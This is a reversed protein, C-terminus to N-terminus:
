KKKSRKPKGPAGHPSAPDIDHLIQRAENDLDATELLDPRLQLTSRLAEQRRWRRINEHHGTMLIDPVRMGRLEEPRTYHPHDLLGRFFSDEAVSASNGVVGEIMRAAADAILMAPLEGGSVVFDGVSIEDPSLAEHVRHDFGEYRGCLVVIWGANAIERAVPQTFLRGKPSTLVVRPEPAVEPARDGGAGDNEETPTAPASASQRIAEVCRLVPEALMVMGPGGGYAEDDTSRYKDTAFERLDWVRFDLLGQKVGRAIVGEGLLADFMRPFITVFDIRLGAAGARDVVEGAAGIKGLERPERADSSQSSHAVSPRRESEDEIAVLGELDDLGAPISAVIRRNTLDIDTCIEAAFPMEYTRSGQKVTLLVGGGGEYADVITGRESGDPDVVALGVLDHLYYEGEELQRAETAPIELTWGQIDRLEEPSGIEEFKILVRGAHPRVSEVKVGRSSADDPAVLLVERLAFFRELSDAWPEISAEGRVGHPKRIIGLAIRDSM